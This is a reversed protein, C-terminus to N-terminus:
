YRVIGGKYGIKDFHYQWCTLGRDTKFWNKYVPIGMVLVNMGERFDANSLPEGTDLDVAGIIDPVTMIVKEGEWAVLSENQYDLRFSKGGYNGIGEVQVFGFDWSGKSDSVFKTLKGRFLEKCDTVKKVEGFIDSKDAKAKLLAKGVAQAHAYAGPYLKDRIDEATCIAFAVGMLMGSALAMHRGVVDLYAANLCDDPYTITVNDNSDVMVFPAIPVDNIGYLLTQISPVARAAGDADVVPLGKYMAVMFPLIMNLAGYELAMLYHIKKNMQYGVRDLAVYASTTEKLLSAGREKAVQPSGMGGCTGVYRGRQVEDVSIINVALEGKKACEELVEIGNELSGGGGGALLCSGYIMELLDQKKLIRAM